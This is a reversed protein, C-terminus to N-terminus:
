TLLPKSCPIRANLGEQQLARRVTRPAVHPFTTRQVDTADRCETTTVKRAALKSDRATLLRPRGLKPKVAY